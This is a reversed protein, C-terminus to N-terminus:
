EDLNDVFMLDYGVIASSLSEFVCIGVLVRWLFSMVKLAVLLGFYEIGWISSGRFFIYFRFKAVGFGNILLWDIREYFSYDFNFSLGDFCLYSWM